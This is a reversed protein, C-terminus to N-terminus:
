SAPKAAIISDVVRQFQDFSLNPYLRGGILFTPTSNVGLAVAEDYSAQLRGAYKASEMCQDYAGLDLGVIGAYKRFQGAAGGSAWDPQGQYLLSHMQWYKGQDDACAAAHAALRSYKHMSLPFDRYRWRVKGAEILRAKVDPFTVIDFDACFPCEYDAYETVMVPASDSGLMYGHFGATDAPLVSVNAPISVTNRRSLQWGLFAVGAAAVVGITVYFGKMGSPAAAM